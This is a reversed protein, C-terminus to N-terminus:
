TPSRTAARGLDAQEKKESVYQRGRGAPGWAGPRFTVDQLTAIVALATGALPVGALPAETSQPAEADAGAPTDLPPLSRPLLFLARPLDWHPLLDRCLSAERPSNQTDHGRWLPGTEPFGPRVPGPARMVPIKPGRGM